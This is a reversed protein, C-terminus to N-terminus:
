GSGFYFGGIAVPDAGAEAVHEVEDGEVFGCFVFSLLFEVRDFLVGLEGRSISSEVVGFCINVPTLPALPTYSKFCNVAKGM